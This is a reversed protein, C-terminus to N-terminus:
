EIISLNVFLRRFNNITEDSLIIEKDIVKDYFEKAAM